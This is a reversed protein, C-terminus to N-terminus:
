RRPPATSTQRRQTGPRLFKVMVEVPLLPVRCGSASPLTFSTSSSKQPSKKPSKKFPKKFPTKQPPNKLCTKPLHNIKACPIRPRSPRRTECGRRSALGLPPPHDDSTVAECRARGLAPRLRADIRHAGLATEFWLLFIIIGLCLSAISLGSDEGEMCTRSTETDLTRFIGSEGPRLYEQWNM